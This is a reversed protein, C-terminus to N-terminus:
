ASSCCYISCRWPPRWASIGPRCRRLRQARLRPVAGPEWLRVPVIFATTSAVRLYLTQEAQPPLRLSFVFHRHPYGRSEFPATTGPRLLRWATRPLEPALPTCPWKWCANSRNTAPTPGGAPAVVLGVAHHRFEPGRWTFNATRSSSHWGPARFRSWRLSGGPRRACGAPRGPVATRHGSQLSWRM